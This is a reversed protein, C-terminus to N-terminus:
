KDSVIVLDDSGDFSHHVYNHIWCLEYWRDCMDGCFVVHVCSSCLVNWASLHMFAYMEGHNIKEEM